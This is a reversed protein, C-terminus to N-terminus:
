RLRIYAWVAAAAAGVMGLLVLIAFLTKRISTPTEGTIKGTAGNVVAEFPKGRYSYSVKWIPLLVLESTEESYEPWVNLGSCTDGPVALECLNRSYRDMVARAAPRAGDYDVTVTEVVAGDAAPSALAALPWPELTTRWDDRVGASAPILVDDLVPNIEGSADQWSVSRSRRDRPSDGSEMYHGAQAQWPCSVRAKFFWYPLYIPAVVSLVATTALDDPALPQARFWDRVQAQAVGETEAFPIRRPTSETNTM